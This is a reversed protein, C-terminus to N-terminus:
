GEHHNHGECAGCEDCGAGHHPHGHALEEAEAERINTVTVDFNLDLGALPHNGDVTVTDGEVKTVTVIRNGEPTQAQFQMGEELPVAASFQARPVGMILGEDREGYADAAPITVKITDGEAKGELARELGPIINEHGHLYALPDAGATSDILQNDANTLTYDISVVRDKSINM